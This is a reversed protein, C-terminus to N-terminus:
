RIPIDFDLKPTPVNQDLPTSDIYRDDLNGVRGNFDGLLLMPTSQDVFKLIGSNLEDWIKDDYYTSTIDNIYTAVIILNNQMNTVCSKDIEIWVFNNSNELVKVNKSLYNKYLILFGGSIRGNKVGTHKQPKVFYHSYNIDNFNIDCKCGWVECLIEIDNLIGEKIATIKCGSGNHLGEINQFGISVKRTVM